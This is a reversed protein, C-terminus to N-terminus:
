EEIDFTLDIKRDTFIPIFSPLETIAFKASNGYLKKCLYNMHSIFDQISYGISSTMVVRICEPPPRFIFTKLHSNITLDSILQETVLRLIYHHLFKSTVSKTFAIKKAAETTPFLATIDDEM